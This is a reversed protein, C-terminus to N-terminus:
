KSLNRLIPKETNGKGQVSTAVASSISFYLNTFFSISGIQELYYPTNKYTSACNIADKKHLSFLSCSPSWLVCLPLLHIYVPTPSRLYM